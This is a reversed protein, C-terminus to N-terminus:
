QTIIFGAMGLDDTYELNEKKCKRKVLNWCKKIFEGNLSKYGTVAQAM